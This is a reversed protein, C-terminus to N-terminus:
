ISFDPRCSQQDIGDGAEEPFNDTFRTTRLSALHGDASSGMVGIKQPDIDLEAASARLTRIARRADLFPVPFQYGSLPDGSVRYKVVIATIGRENLWAAYDRGEHDAALVSYGGGPFIVV